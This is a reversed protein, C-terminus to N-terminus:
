ADRSRTSDRNARPLEFIFGLGLRRAIADLALPLGIGALMGAIAYASILRTGSVAMIGLMVPYAALVHAVYIPLTRAGLYELARIESIEAIFKALALSFVIGAGALVLRGSWLMNWGLGIFASELGAFLLAASVLQLAGVRKWAKLLGLEEAAIGAAFFIYNRALDAFPGFDIWLAGFYLLLATGLLLPLSLRGSASYIAGSILSMFFLAHLFWFHARPYYLCTALATWSLGDGGSRSLVIEIATQLLSWVIFPYLITRLKSLAFLKLGRKLLAGRFFLGSLFFFLPVHFSYLLADIFQYAETEACLGMKMIQHQIHSAVILVIAIAKAYDVWVIRNGAM